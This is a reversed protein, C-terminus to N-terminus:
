QSFRHHGAAFAVPAVGVAHEHADRQLQPPQLMASPADRQPVGVECGEM